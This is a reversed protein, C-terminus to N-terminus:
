QLGCELGMTASERKVCLFVEPINCGTVLVNEYFENQGRLNFM